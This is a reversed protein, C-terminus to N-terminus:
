QLKFHIAFSGQRKESPQQTVASLFLCRRATKNRHAEPAQRLTKNEEPSNQSRALKFMDTVLNYRIFFFSFAFHPKIRQFEEDIYTAQHSSPSNKDILVTRNGM